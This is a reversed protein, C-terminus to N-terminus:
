ADDCGKIQWGLPSMALRRQQLLAQLAVNVRDISIGTMTALWRSEPRFTSRCIASAVAAEIEARVVVEVEADSMGLRTALTRVTSISAPRTSRLCRSITAHSVGLQRAFRRVSYRRNRSQRRSLEGHVLQRFRVNLDYGVALGAIVAGCSFTTCGEERGIEAQRPAIQTERSTIQTERSAIRTERSAIEAERSTIEVDRSGIEIQRSGIEVDRHASRL